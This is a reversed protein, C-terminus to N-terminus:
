GQRYVIRGRKEDYSSFEVKVRDGVLIRIRFLRMKGSIYALIERGSDLRVRFQANPFTELVVGEEQNVMVEKM